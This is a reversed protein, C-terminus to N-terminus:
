LSLYTHTYMHEEKMKDRTLLKDYKDTGSSEELRGLMMGMIEWKHKADAWFCFVVVRSSKM